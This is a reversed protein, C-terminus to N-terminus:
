VSDDASQPIRLASHPNFIFLADRRRGIRLGFDANRLGEDHRLLAQVYPADLPAVLGAPAAPLGEQEEVARDAARLRHAPEGLAEGVLVAGDRRGDGVHARECFDAVRRADDEVALVDPAAADEAARERPGAREGEGRWVSGRTRSLAPGGSRAAAARSSFVNRSRRRSGKLNLRASSLSSIDLSRSAGAGGSTASRTASNRRRSSSYKSRWRVFAVSRERTASLASKLRFSSYRGSSGSAQGPRTRM